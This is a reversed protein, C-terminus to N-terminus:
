HPGGQTDQPSGYHQEIRTLLAALAALQPPSLAPQQKLGSTSSGLRVARVAGTPKALRYEEPDIRGSVLAEGLGRAANVVLEDDGTIPNITFAVGSVLAPVMCQVLVAISAHESGLHRAERYARAQPSAASRRCVLVAEVLQERAVNLQTEHVGAFSHGASDEGVGSSRVAFRTGPAVRDLWPVDAIQQVDAATATTPVVIGDPVPFGAQKLRACNFAKGGTRPLDERDIADLTKFMDVASFTVM